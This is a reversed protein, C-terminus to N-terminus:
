EGANTQLIREIDEAHDYNYSQVYGIYPSFLLISFLLGIALAKYEGNKIVVYLLWIVNLTMIIHSLHALLTETSWPVVFSGLVGFFYIPLITIVPFISKKKIIFIVFGTLYLISTPACANYALWEIFSIKVIGLFFFISNATALLLLISLVIGTNREKNSLMM